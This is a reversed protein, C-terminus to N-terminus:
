TTTSLLARLEGFCHVLHDPSESSLEECSHAGWTVACTTVGAAKGMRIDYSSDGVVIVREKAQMSRGLSELAVHVSDPSPKCKEVMDPGVFVDVLDAVGIKRANRIAVETRKSTVVAVLAGQDRLMKLLSVAGDFAKMQTDAVEAYRKRFIVLLESFEREDIGDAGMERFTVEIPVGMSAIIRQASPVKLGARAFAWQTAEVGCCASDALTGDFDFLVHTFLRRAFRPSETDNNDPLFYSEPFPRPCSEGIIPGLGEHPPMGDYALVRQRISRQAAIKSQLNSFYGNSASLPQMALVIAPGLNRSRRGEHGPCSVNVFWREGGYCFSFDPDNWDEPVDDPWSHSDHKFSGDLISWAEFQNRTLDADQASRVFVILSSLGAEPQDVYALESLYRDMIRALRDESDARPDIWAFRVLNRKHAAIGLLCPFGESKLVSDFASFAERVWQPAEQKRHLCEGTMMPVDVKM